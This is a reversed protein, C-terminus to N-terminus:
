GHRNVDRAHSDVVIIGGIYTNLTIYRDAIINEESFIWVLIDSVNLM